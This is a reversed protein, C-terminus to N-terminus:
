RIGSDYFDNSDYNASDYGNSLARQRFGQGYQRFADAYNSAWNHLPTERFVNFKEDWIYQYNRLAKLGDACRTKDFYCSAFAQRTQEVGENLRAVRPVIVIPKIGLELLTERRTTNTSLETVEVDHPLYHNGYLYGKDKLVKAYHDLGTLRGEYCDIFRHELGVRQMFWIATTDNRGLDWFTHVPVSTEVPINLIRSKAAELQEGYIAGEVAAKTEGEWIHLYKNYNDRKCAEMERRLEDPFWPNERWGIRQVHITDDTYAGTSELQTQYPVVYRLYTEDTESAPNFSIWIESGEARITPILIDWSNETIAEAEECWCIDVGEVSKIKTVNNKLGEFIFHTGNKGHIANQSVSYFGSLGLRDITDKLLKHVSERISGQFERTCLVRLKREAGKLLLVQAFGWSKAGGRGGYYVKYRKPHLLPKFKEVIQIQM